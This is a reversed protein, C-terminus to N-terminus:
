RINGQDIEQIMWRIQNEWGQRSQRTNKVFRQDRDTPIRNLIDTAMELTRRMDPLQGLEEHCRAMQVFAELSEPENIFQNAAARYAELAGRYNGEQFLLDAEGFYSNCLLIEGNPVKTKGEETTLERRLTAFTDRSHVLLEKRKGRWQAIAEESVLRNGKLLTEPWYSAMRYAKATMYLLEYRRSDGQFRRLGEEMSAISRLLQQYSKELDSQLTPTQSGDEVSMGLIRVQMQEGQRFMLTGLEILSEKWIPSDPRVNGSYLIDLILSESQEFDGQNWCLKAATLKAEPVLPSSPDVLLLKDITLLAAQTEGTAAFNKARMLLPRAHDSRPALNLYRDIMRNSDAFSSAYHFDEIGTWLREMYTPIRMDIQSLRDISQAARLFVNEIRKSEEKGEVKTKTQDTPAAIARERQLYRAWRDHVVADLRLRDVESCVNPLNSVFRECDSYIGKDLLQKASALLRLRMEELPMRYNDYWKSENFNRKLQELTSITESYMNLNILADIEEIGAIMFEPEFPSSLRLSSLVSVAQQMAGSDGYILGQELMAQRRIENPVNRLSEIEKLHSLAKERKETADAPPPSALSQKRLCRALTLNAYCRMPSEVSITRWLPEVRDHERRECRIEMEKAAIRESDSPTLASLAAWRELRRLAADPDRQNGYLDIDILREVADSRGKPWRDFAISLPEVAEDMRLLEYLTVGLLYNGLGEYGPPFKLDRSQELHTAAEENKEMRSPRYQLSEGAQRAAAGLLFHRTSQDVRKKIRPVEVSSALRAATEFDGRRALRLGLELQDSVEVPQSAYMWAILVAISVGLLGGIIALVKIRGM